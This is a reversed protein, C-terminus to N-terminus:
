DSTDLIVNFKCDSTDLIVNPIPLQQLLCHSDSHRVSIYISVRSLGTTGTVATLQVDNSYSLSRPSEPTHELEHGRVDASEQRVQPGRTQDLWRLQETRRGVALSSM